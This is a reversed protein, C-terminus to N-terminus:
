GPCKSSTSKRTESESLRKHGNFPQAGSGGAQLFDLGSSRLRMTKIKKSQSICAFRSAVRPVCTSLCFSHLTIYAFRSTPSICRTAQFTWSVSQVTAEPWLTDSFCRSIYTATNWRESQQSCQVSIHRGAPARTRPFQYHAAALHPVLLSILRKTLINRPFHICARSTTTNRLKKHLGSTWRRTWSFGCLSQSRKDSIVKFWDVENSSHRQCGNQYQGRM